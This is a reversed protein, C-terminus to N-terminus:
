GEITARDARTRCVTTNPQKLGNRGEAVTPRTNRPPSGGRGAEGRKRDGRRRPPSGGRGPTRSAAAATKVATETVTQVLQRGAGGPLWGEALLDTIVLVVEIAPAPTSPL